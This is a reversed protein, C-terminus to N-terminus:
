RGPDRGAFRPSSRWGFRPSHRSTMTLSKLAYAHLDVFDGPMHLGVLHRRGDPADLHRTMLGDVLLLSVDVEVRQRVAVHGPDYTETNSQVRWCLANPTCIELANNRLVNQTLM